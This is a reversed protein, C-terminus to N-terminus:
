RSAQPSISTTASSRTPPIPTAAKPLSRSTRAPATFFGAATTCFTIPFAENSKVLRASWATLTSSTIWMTYTGFAGTPLTDGVRALCESTPPFVASAAAPDTATITFGLLAGASQAPVTGTFIGDGALLDGGTGSDLMAISTLTASPDLRYKLTVSAIGDPDAVKAFVRFPLGAVPLAPLHTVDTIAPAANAVARSNAAAPTGLNTPVTLAGYAELGGGRLRLLFDPSGHLWRARARLTATTGTAITATLSSRVHNPLPDGRGAAVLRLSKTGAFGSNEIISRNHTGQVLWAGIGSEFGGNTVLNSGGSIAEIEDVLAEGTNLICADIRNALASANLNVHDLVGTTEVLTWPAKATDDSDLRLPTSIDRADALELSSGGGDAWQSWRSRDAYSVEDVAAFYTLPGAITVPQGLVVEEGGGSLSGTFPGFVLAASLGPHNALVRAPNKAVVVYGNAAISAGAPFTFSVGDSIRWDALSVSSGSLNRLEIWQDESDGTIPHFYLENIVVPGRAAASNTAGPTANTLRRFAGEGDPTRGSATDPLQGRFRVADLVRTQTANTFFITEGEASLAFGLQTQTFSVRGRPALVTGGPIQYKALLAVDDSLWCGSVDVSLPSSNFLEIFDSGVTSHALIENILVHDQPSAPLTQATGPSGGILTSASWARVDGEGYSPRTLVRSHGAGDASAPWDPGDNWIAELVIADNARRLRVAGGENSLSGTWPGLVGTIGYVTQVDAPVAAVVLFGLAPVSTGPPFAYDVDSSIRWGTLDEPWPNTNYLEIFELNKGDLRAAPHPHLESFIIPTKKSSIALPEATRQWRNPYVVSVTAAPSTTSGIQNTIVVSYGGASALSATNIALTAATAGSIPVGDKLWQYTMSTPSTAAVSLFASEGFVISQTQPPTTVVPENGLISVTLNEVRGDATAGANLGNGSNHMRLEIYRAANEWTINWPGLNFTSGGSVTVVASATTPSVTEDITLVVTYNTAYIDPSRLVAAAGSGVNVNDAFTAWGGSGRVFFGVDTSASNPGIHGATDGLDLSLWTDNINTSSRQLNATFSVSWRKGALQPGFDTSLRVAM